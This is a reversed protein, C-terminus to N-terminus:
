ESLVDKVFPVTLKRQAVLSANDLKDLVTFLTTMDRAYHHLLFWGVTENLQLGRQHARLQLARLKDEDSLPQIVYRLGWNLRSVLDPLLFGSAQPSLTATILLYCQKAHLRNYLDFLGEEWERNGAVADIDDLCVLTMDELNDLLDLSFQQYDALPIYSAPLHQLAAQLCVAQLLHTKGVGSSGSMFLYHDIGGTLFHRLQAVVEVQHQAVFFSEFTADDRLNVPLSLQKVSGSTINM